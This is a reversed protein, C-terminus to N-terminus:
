TRSDDLIYKSRGLAIGAAAASSSPIERVAFARKAAVALIYKEGLM